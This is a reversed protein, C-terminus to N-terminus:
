SAKSGFWDQWQLRWHLRLATRAPLLGYPRSNSAAQPCGKLEGALFRKAGAVVAEAALATIREEFHTLGEGRRRVVVQTELVPGTDLGADVVYTSVGCPDGNLLAWRNCYNGRYGPLIGSHANIITASFHRIFRERLISTGALLGLQPKYQELMACSAPANLSAVNDLPVGM